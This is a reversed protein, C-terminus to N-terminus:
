ASVWAYGRSMQQVLSWGWPVAFSWSCVGAGACLWAQVQARRGLRALPLGAFGALAAMGLASGTGFCVIYVLATAFSPMRALALASLAGSGALGHVLGIFLPRRMLVSSPAQVHAAVGDRHHAAERDHHRRILTIARLVCRAGLVLLMAAVILEFILGVRESLYIQLSMLAASVLFLSSSHGLGWVAGLWAAGRANPATAVLTSVAAIHDPESAHRAGLLLALLWGTLLSTM